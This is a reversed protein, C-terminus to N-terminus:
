DLAPGLVFEVVEFGHDELMAEIDSWTYDPIEEEVEAILGVVHRFVEHEEFDEPIRLLRIAESDQSPLIMMTNSM